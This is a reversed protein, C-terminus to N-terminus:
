PKMPNDVDITRKQKTERCIVVSGINCKPAIRTEMANRATSIDATEGQETTKRERGIRVSISLTRGIVSTGSRKGQTKGTKTLASTEGDANRKKLM